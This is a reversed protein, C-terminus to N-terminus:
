CTQLMQFAPWGDGHERHGKRFYGVLSRRDSNGRAAAPSPFPQIRCSRSVSLPKPTGPNALWHPWRFMLLSFLYAAKGPSFCPRQSSSRIGVCDLNRGTRCIQAAKEGANRTEAQTLCDLFFHTAILDYPSVEQPPTWSRADAQHVTVRDAHGGAHRMLSELMAASADVADVRIDPNQRLLRATFRGDGDGIVLARRCATADKLFTRRTLALWPGFSFYEMWRYVGALGDFDPTQNMTFPAGPAGTFGPRRLGAPHTTHASQSRSPSFCAASRERLGYRGSRGDAASEFVAALRRCIGRRGPHMRCCLRTFANRKGVGLVSHFLFQALRGACLIRRHRVPQCFFTRVRRAPSLLGAAFMWHYLRLCHVAGCSLVTAQFALSVLLSAKWIGASFTREHLLGADGVRTCFQAGDGRAAHRRHDPERRRVGRGVGISASGASLALPISSARAAPTGQARSVGPARGAPSRRRLGGM